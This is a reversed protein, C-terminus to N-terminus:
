RIWGQRSAPSAPHQRSHKGLSSSLRGKKRKETLLKADQLSFCGLELAFYIKKFANRITSLSTADAGSAITGPYTNNIEEWQELWTTRNWKKECKRYTFDVLDSLSTLAIKQGEEPFRQFGRISLLAENSIAEPNFNIGEQKTRREVM